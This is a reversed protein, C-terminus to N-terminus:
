KLLAFSFSGAVANQVRATIQSDTGSAQQDSSEMLGIIESMRMKLATLIQSQPFNNVVESGPEQKEIGSKEPLGKRSIQTHLYTPSNETKM